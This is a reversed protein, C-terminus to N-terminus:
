DRWATLTLIEFREAVRGDAGSQALFAEQARQWGARTLAPARDRLAAGAGQDRLDEVLRRLAPYRVDLPYHDTVQRVFGARQLLASAARNDIMPHVRAAPSEGDAALLAQRLRPLSGAGVMSALLLGGPALAARLHLLAGPLDNITDLMGLTAILDYTEGGLPQEFDSFRDLEVDLGKETLAGRLADGGLGVVLARRGAFRIFELRERMDDAMADGLWRAADAQRQRTASRRRRHALRRPDFIQPVAQSM